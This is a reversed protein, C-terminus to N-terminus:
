VYYGCGKVIQDKTQPADKCVKPKRDNIKCLNGKLMKCELPVFLKLMDKDKDIVDIGHYRIWQVIDSRGYLKIPVRLILFRCCTGCKNCSGKIKTMKRGRRSTSM